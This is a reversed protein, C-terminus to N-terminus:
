YIVSDKEVFGSCTDNVSKLEIYSIKIKLNFDTFSVLVNLKLPHLHM